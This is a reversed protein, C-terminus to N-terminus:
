STAPWSSRRQLGSCILLASGPSDGPRGSIAHHVLGAVEHQQVQRVAVAQVPSYLLSFLM